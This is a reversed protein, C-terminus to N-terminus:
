EGIVSWIFGLFLFVGLLLGALALGGLAPSPAGNLGPIWAQAFVPMFLMGGTWALLLVLFLYRGNPGTISRVWSTYRRSPVLEAAFVVLIVLSALIIAGIAATVVIIVGAQSTQPLFAGLFCFIMTIVFGLLVLNKVLKLMAALRAFPSGAPHRPAASLLAQPGELDGRLAM